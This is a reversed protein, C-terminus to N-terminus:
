KKKTEQILFDKFLDTYRYNDGDNPEFKDNIIAFISLLKIKNNTKIVPGIASSTTQPKTPDITRM